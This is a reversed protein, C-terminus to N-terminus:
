KTKFSSQAKKGLRRSATKIDDINTVGKQLEIIEKQLNLKDIFNIFELKTNRSTLFQFELYKNLLDTFLGILLGQKELLSKDKKTKKILFSDYMLKTMQRFEKENIENKNGIETISIM